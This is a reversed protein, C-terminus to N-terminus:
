KSLRKPFKSIRSGIPVSMQVSGHVVEEALEEQHIEVNSGGSGGLISSFKQVLLLDM